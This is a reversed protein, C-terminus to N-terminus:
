RMSMEIDNVKMENNGIEVKNLKYTDKYSDNIQV